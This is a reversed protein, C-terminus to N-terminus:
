DMGLAAKLKTIVDDPPDPKCVFGFVDLGAFREALVEAPYGSTVIVRAEPNLQRLERFTEEGNMKPLTLDLFVCVIQDRYEQYVRIAEEGDQATLTSFGARNFIVPLSRRNLDDDDVVLVTGLSPQGTTSKGKKPPPVVGTTPHIVSGKSEQNGVAVAERLTAVMTDLQYPKQIFGALGLPSFSATAAEESYGSSLIVRVDPSIRRLERFTEEGNMKPMTLDLLVCVIKKQNERYLSIADEGDSATLVTFGAHEIMRSASNRVIEEDDVVLM